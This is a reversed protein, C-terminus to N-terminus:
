TGGDMPFSSRVEDDSENDYSRNTIRLDDPSLTRLVSSSNSSVAGGSSGSAVVLPVITNGSHAPAPAMGIQVSHSGPHHLVHSRPHAGSSGGYHGATAATGDSGDRDQDAGIVLQVSQFPSTAASRYHHQQEQGGGPPLVHQLQLPVHLQQQKQPSAEQSQPAGAASPDYRLGTSAVGRGQTISISNKYPAGGTYIITTSPQATTANSGSCVLQSAGAGGNGHLHDSNALVYSVIASQQQQPQQSKAGIAVGGDQQLLTRHHSDVRRDITHSSFNDLADELEDWWPPKLLRMDVRKVIRIEQKDDAGGIQVSFQKKNGHVEKVIGEIFVDGGTSTVPHPHVCTARVCVRVGPQLDALAPCVDDIIDQQRHAATDDLVGEYTQHSGEPQDFGIVVTGPAATGRIRGSDYVDKRRALVRHNIWEGYSPTTTYLKKSSVYYADAPSSSQQLRLVQQQQQQQQHRITLPDVALLIQRNHGIVQQHHHQQQQTPHAHQQLQSSTDIAGGLNGGGRDLEGNKFIATNEGTSRAKEYTSSSNPDDQEEERSSPVGGEGDGTTDMPQPPAVVSKVGSDSSMAPPAPLPPPPVPRHSEMEELEALDFKRKKPHQRPTASQHASKEAQM